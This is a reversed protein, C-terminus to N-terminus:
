AHTVESPEALTPRRHSREPVTAVVRTGRGPASDIALTGNLLGMRERMTFLGFGDREVSDSLDFGHGDDEIVFRTQTADGSITVTAASAGSHKRINTLAEQVVRILHVECRPSLTLPTEFTSVFTTAIGCQQTYKTLYARLNDELGRETRSSDRLGLIAERVDQYAEQSVDALAILESAIFRTARVDQHGALARLRLHIAGLVQALSDHMERAIRDREALVARQRGSEQTQASTIAIGALGSVTALFGGDRETFEEGSRRGLWLTGLTEVPGRIPVSVTVACEDQGAADLGSSVFASGDVFVEADEPQGAFQVARAAEEELSIVAADAGLRERAHRAVADLIGDPAAHNSIQLLVDYFAHGENKRRNLDDILQALQVASALQQAITRLTDLTLGEEPGVGPALWLQLRGLAVAGAALPLDISPPADRGPTPTGPGSGPPVPGSRTVVTEALGSGSFVTVSARAAGSARLVSELAVETIRDVGIEGQIANSVANTAALQRNQRVVQRQARDILRFMVTAFAIIALVTAGLYVPRYDRLFGKVDAWDNGEVLYRVIELVLVFAVPLVIALVRLRRDM